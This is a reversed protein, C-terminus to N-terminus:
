SLPTSGTTRMKTDFGNDRGAVALSAVLRKMDWEFPGPLTEDFDNLEFM